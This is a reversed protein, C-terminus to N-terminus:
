LCWNCLPDERHRFLHLMADQGQGLTFYGDGKANWAVVEGHNDPRYAVEEGPSQLAKSVDGDPMHWHFIHNTTKILIDQGNPSIDATVPGPNNTHLPLTFVSSLTVTHNRNWGSSYLKALKSSSGVSESIIYVDGNKDVTLAKSATESWIFHQSSEVNVNYTTISIPEKIMYVANRGTHDSESTDAIYICTGLGPCPGVAIDDWDRVSVNQVHLTAVVSATWEDVIYISVSHNSIAYLYGHHKRSAALGSAMLLGQSSDIPGIELFENYYNSVPAQTSTYSSTQPTTTSTPLTTKPKSTTYSSHKRKYFHLAQQSDQAVTYYGSGDWKWAVSEGHYEYVSPVGVGPHQLANTVSKDPLDWYYIHHLTKILMDTGSPSIDAALPGANPSTFPLTQTSFVDVTKGANWGQAPLKAVSAPHGENELFVFVDGSSDVILAESKIGNNRYNLTGTVSVDQSKMDAPEQVAYVTSEAHQRAGTDVVFICTGSGRPCAGVAIDEWDFEHSNQVALAGVTQATDEDIIYIKNTGLNGNIAYLYGPHTRSATLGSIVHLGSAPSIHGATVGNSFDTVTSYVSLLWDGGCMQAQDGGCLKDCEKEAVKTGHILATGCWCQTSGEIGAYAYTDCHDLCAQVTMRTSTMINVLLVRPQQQDQYCGVYGQLSYRSSLLVSIFTFSWM